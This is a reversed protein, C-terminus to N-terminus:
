CIQFYELFFRFTSSLLLTVVLVWVACLDTLTVPLETSNLVKLDCKNKVYFTFCKNRNWHSVYMLLRREDVHSSTFADLKQLKLSKFQKLVERKIGNEM